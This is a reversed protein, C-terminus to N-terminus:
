SSRSPADSSRSTAAARPLGRRSRPPRGCARPRSPNSGTSFPASKRRGGRRGTGRSDARSRALAPADAPRHRDRAAAHGRRDAAASRAAAHGRTRLRRARRPRLRPPRRPAPAPPRHPRRGRARTRRRGHPREARRLQRQGAPGARLDLPGHRAAGRLPQLGRRQRGRRAPLRAAVGRRLRRELSLRDHSAVPRIPLRHVHASPACAREGVAAEEDGHRGRQTATGNDHHM